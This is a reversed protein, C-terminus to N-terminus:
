NEWHNESTNEPIFGTQFLEVSVTSRSGFKFYSFDGVGVRFRVRVQLSSSMQQDVLLLYRLSKMGLRDATGHALEAHALRFTERQNGALWQADDYVLQDAPAMVAHSDPVHLV